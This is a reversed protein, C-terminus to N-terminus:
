KGTYNAAVYEGSLTLFIYLTQKKEEQVQPNNFSVVWEKSGNFVKEEIKAINVSKWSPELVNQDVLNSVIKTAIASAKEATVPAHSHGGGALAQVSWLGIVLVAIYKFMRM